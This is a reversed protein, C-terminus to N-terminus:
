RPSNTRHKNNLPGVRVWRGFPVCWRNRDWGAAEKLMAYFLRCALDPPLISYHLTCPTHEAVLAPTGLTRPALQIPKKKEEIPAQKLVLMLSVPSRSPRSTPKPKSPSVLNSGTQLDDSEGDSLEIVGRIPPRSTPPDSRETQDIDPLSKGGVSPTKKNVIWHELGARKRKRGSLQENSIKSIRDSANLRAAALEVNGEAEVLASLLADQTTNVAVKEDVLSALLALLTETDHEGQM